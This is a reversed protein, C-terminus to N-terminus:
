VIVEKILRFWETETRTKRAENEGNQKKLSYSGQDTQVMRNESRYRGQNMRLMRNKIEIKRLGNKTNEKGMKM